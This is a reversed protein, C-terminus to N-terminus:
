AVNLLYVIGVLLVIAMIIPLCGSGGRERQARPVVPLGYQDPTFLGRLTYILMLCMLFGVMLGVLLMLDLTVTITSM